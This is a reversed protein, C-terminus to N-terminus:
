LQTLKWPFYFPKEKLDTLKENKTIYEFAKGAVLGSAAVKIFESIEKPAFVILFSTALGVGIQLGALWQAKRIKEFTAQTERIGEDVERMLDLLITETPPSPFENFFKRLIKQYRNFADQEKSRLRIIEASDIGKLHPLYFRVTEAPGLRPYHDTETMQRFLQDYNLTVPLFSKDFWNLNEPPNEGMYEWTEAPAYLYLINAEIPARYKLLTKIFLHPGEDGPWSLLSAGEIIREHITGFEIFSITSFTCLKNIITDSSEGWNKGLPKGKAWINLGEIPLGQSGAKQLQPTMEFAMQTIHERIEVGKATRWLIARIKEPDYDGLGVSDLYNYIKEYM